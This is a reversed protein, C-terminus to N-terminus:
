QKYILTVNYTNTVTAAQGIVKVTIPGALPINDYWANATNNSGGVFTAAAGDTKSLALRPSFYTDAAISAKSFVTMEESTVTVTCTGATPVDVHIGELEGRLVYTKVNTNVGIIPMAFLRDDMGANVVGAALMVALIVLTNKM